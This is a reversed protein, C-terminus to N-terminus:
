RDLVKESDSLTTLADIIADNLIKLGEPRSPAGMVEDIIRDPIQQLQERIYKGFEFLQTYVKEKEVLQGRRVDIDLQLKETELEVKSRRATALTDVNSEKKEEPDVDPEIKPKSKKAPANKKKAAKAGNEVSTPKGFLNENWERDAVQWDIMKRKGSESDTVSKDIRGEAIAVSVAQPSCGRHRSYASPSIFQESPTTKQQRTKAM